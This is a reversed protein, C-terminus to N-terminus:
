HGVVSFDAWELVCPIAVHLKKPLHPTASPTASPTTSPGRGCVPSRAAPAVAVPLPLPLPRMGRADADADADPTARGAMPWRGHGMPMSLSALLPRPCFALLALPWLWLVSCGTSPLDLPWLWLVKATIAKHNAQFNTGLKMAVQQKETHKVTLEAPLHEQLAAHEVVRKLTARMREPNDKTKLFMGDVIENADRQQQRVGASNDSRGVQEVSYQHKRKRSNASYSASKLAEGAPLDAVAARANHQDATKEQVPTFSSGGGGNMLMTHVSRQKPQPTAAAGVPRPNVAPAIVADNLDSMNAGVLVACPFSCPPLLLFSSVLGSRGCMLLPLCSTKVSPRGSTM